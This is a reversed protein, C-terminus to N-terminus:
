EQLAGWPAGPLDGTYTLSLVGLFADTGVQRVRDPVTVTLATCGAFAGYGIQELGEPLTLATLATCGAFAYSGISQLGEPLEVATLVRNNYFAGSAITRIQAPVTYQAQQTHVEVLIDHIIIAEAHQLAEKEWKTNKVANTGISQLSAPFTIKELNVCNFFANEAIVSVGEEFVVERLNVCDRFAESGVASVPRGNLAAPITIVSDTRGKDTLGTIQVTEDEQLVYRFVPIDAQRGCGALVLCFFVPLLAGMAPLCRRAAGLRTKKHEKNRM